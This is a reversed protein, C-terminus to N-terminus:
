RFRILFTSRSSNAANEIMGQRKTKGNDGMKLKRYAAEVTTEGRGIREFEAPDHKEVYGAEAVITSGVGVMKGAIANSRGKALKNTENPQVAQSSITGLPKGGYAGKGSTAQRKRAGPRLQRKLKVAIAARQSTTPHRRHLNESVVDESRSRDSGPDHM